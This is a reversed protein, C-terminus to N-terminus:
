MIQIVNFSKNLVFLIHQQVVVSAMMVILVKNLIIQNQVKKTRATGLTISKLADVQVSGGFSSVKVNHPGDMNITGTSSTLKLNEGANSRVSESILSPGLQLATLIILAQVIHIEIALLTTRVTQNLTCSAELHSSSEM